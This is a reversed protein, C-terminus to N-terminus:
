SRILSTLCQPLMMSFYAQAPPRSPITYAQPQAWWNQHMSVNMLPNADAGLLAPTWEVTHIKAMMAAIILRTAQYLAEEDKKMKLHSARLM